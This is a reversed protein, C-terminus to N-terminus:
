NARGDEEEEKRARRLLAEQALRRQAQVAERRVAVMDILATFLALLTFIACSGWYLVFVGTRQELYSWLWFRGALVLAISMLIMALGLLRRRQRRREADVESKPPESM